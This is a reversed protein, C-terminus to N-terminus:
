MVKDSDNLKLYNNGEDFPLKDGEKIDRYIVKVNGSKEIKITLFMTEKYDEFRETIKKLENIVDESILSISDDDIENFLDIFDKGNKSYFFKSSYSTKSMTSKVVLFNWDKKIYSLIKNIMENWNVNDFM